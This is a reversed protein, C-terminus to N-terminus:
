TTFHACSLTSHKHDPSRIWGSGLEFPHVSGHDSFAALILLTPEGTVMRAQGAQCRDGHMLSGQAHALPGAQWYVQCNPAQM